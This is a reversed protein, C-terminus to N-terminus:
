MLSLGVFTGAQARVVELSDQATCGGKGGCDGSWREEGEGRGGGAGGGERGRGGGDIAGKSSLFDLRVFASCAPDNFFHVWASLLSRSVTFNFFVSNSSLAFSTGDGFVCFGNTVTESRCQTVRFGLYLTNDVQTVFTKIIGTFTM